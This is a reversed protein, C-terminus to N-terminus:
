PAPLYLGAAHIADLDRRAQSLDVYVVTRMDATEEGAAFRTLTSRMAATTRVAAEGAAYQQVTLALAVAVAARYLAPQRMPGLAALVRPWALLLVGVHLPAVFVAYRVPVRLDVDVESRGFSALLATGVSFAMLALAVRDIRTAIRRTLAWAGAVAAVALFVGGLVQGPLNLAASRTWPLGLYTLLYDLARTWRDASLAEAGDGIATGPIGSLYIGGFVVGWAALVSAWSPRGGQWALWALIPWLCLAAANGFAAAMGALAGLVLPWANASTGDTGTSSVLVIALVSFMLAQPYIGNMPIACDVAAVSTMILMLVLSAPWTADAGPLSRRVLRWLLWGTTAQCVAATVVFPYAVGQFVRADTLTLVRMWIQRHQVHPEWLYSWLNGDRQFQLYRSVISLMDWYPQVIVNAQLYFLFLVLHIVVLARLVVTSLTDSM